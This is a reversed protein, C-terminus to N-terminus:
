RSPGSSDLPSPNSRMTPLPPARQAGFRQRQGSPRSAAFGGLEGYSRLPELDGIAASDFVSRRIKLLGEFYTLLHDHGAQFETPAELGQLETATQETLEIATPYVVAITAALNEDSVIPFVGSTVQQDLASVRFKQLAVWVAEGYEQSPLDKPPVLDAPDRIASVLSPPAEPAFRAEALLLGYNAVEFGVVDVNRAADAVATDLEVTEDLYEILRAHGQAYASPPDIEVIVDRAAAFSEGAGADLLAQLLFEDNM